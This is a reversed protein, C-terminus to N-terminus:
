LRDSHSVRASWQFTFHSFVSRSGTDIHEERSQARDYRTDDNRRARRLRESMRAPWMRDPVGAGYMSSMPSWQLHANQSSYTFDPRHEPSHSTAPRPGSPTTQPIIRTPSDQGGKMGENSLKERFNDLGGVPAMYTAVLACRFLVGEGGPLQFCGGQRPACSLLPVVM